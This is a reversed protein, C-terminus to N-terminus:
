NSTLGTIKTQLHPAHCILRPMFEFNGWEVAAGGVQLQTNDKLGDFFFDKGQQVELSWCDMCLLYMEGDPCFNDYTIYTNDYAIVPNKFGALATGPIGGVQIEYRGDAENALSQWLESTTIVCNVGQGNSTRTTIGDVKASTDTRTFGHQVNRIIQLEVTSSTGIETGAAFVGSDLNTEVARDVRGFVNGSGVQHQLGLVASDSLAGGGWIPQNQESSSLTGTWFDTTVRKFMRELVPKTADDAAKRVATEGRAMTLFDKRIKLPEVYHGWRFEATGFNDEAFASATPYNGGYAVSGGDNPESKVFRIQHEKTGLVSRKQATTMGMASGFFRAPTPRGAKNGKEKYPNKRNYTGAAGLFAWIPSFTTFSNVVAKNINDQIHANIDERIYAM